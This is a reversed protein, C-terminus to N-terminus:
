QADALRESRDEIPYDGTFLMHCPLTVAACPVRAVQCAGVGPSVGLTGTVGVWVSRCAARHICTTNISHDPRENVPLAYGRAALERLTDGTETPALMADHEGVHIHSGFLVKWLAEVGNYLHAAQVTAAAGDM